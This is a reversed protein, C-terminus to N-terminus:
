EVYELEIGEDVLVDWWHWWLLLYVVSALAAVALMPEVPPTVERDGGNVRGGSDRPAVLGVLPGPCRAHITQHPQRWQWHAM